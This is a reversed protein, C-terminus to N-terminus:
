IIDPMRNIDAAPQQPDFRRSVVIELVEAVTRGFEALAKALKAPAFDDRELCAVRHVPRM